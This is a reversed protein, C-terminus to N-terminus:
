KVNCWLKNSIFSITGQFKGANLIEGVRKNIFSIAGKYKRTKAINCWLNQQYIFNYGTMQRNNM